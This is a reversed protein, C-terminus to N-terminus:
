LVGQLDTLMNPYHSPTMLCCAMAQALTSGSRNGYPTMPGSHISSIRAGFGVSTMLYDDKLIRTIKTGGPAMISVGILMLGLM